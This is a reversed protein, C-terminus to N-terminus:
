CAPLARAAKEAAMVSPILNLIKINCHFYRNVHEDLAFLHDHRCLGRRRVLLGPAMETLEGSRGSDYGPEKM